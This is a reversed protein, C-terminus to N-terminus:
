VPSQAPESCTYLSVSFIGMAIGRTGADWCDALVGGSNTLPAAAFTGSLFRFVLISATNTCLTCGLNFCTYAALAVIFIPKRGLRESLPGWILPGLCYGAVFIAITLTAVESSYGFDSATAPAIGSPASSTFTSNLVLFGALATLYWRYTRSWNQACLAFRTLLWLVRCCLACSCACAASVMPNEMDGPGEWHVIVREQGKQSMFRELNNETDRRSLSGGFIHDGHDTVESQERRSFSRTPKLGALKEPDNAANYTPHKM